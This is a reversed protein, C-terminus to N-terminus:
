RCLYVWKFVADPWLTSMKETPEGTKEREREAERDSQRRHKMARPANKRQNGLWYVTRKEM